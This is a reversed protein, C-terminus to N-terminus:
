TAWAEYIARGIGIAARNAEDSGEGAGASELAGEISLGDVQVSSSVKRAVLDLATKQVTGAYYPVEITVDLTQGIRHIRGNAQRVVRADYDVGEVWIARSFHVLNNLGTQVARPNTILIRRGPEIVNENLWDERRSAKVKNVDLFVARQGLYEKFLRLYRAPLGSSGTHRLFILVNRGQEISTRVRHLIWREKPTVWSAPFMKAAAVVNGGAEKPYSLVFEELDGTCRDLYSPLEAMAGWLKGALQSYRDAKIQRTLESLLRRFESLMEQGTGDDDAVTIPVPLEACPPLEEDLDEKHMIVAVPLLHDLIFSPLVGPAQGMQRIEPAERTEERDSRSGYGVIEPAAEASVPVYIKRYGYATIFAQQEWPRFQGRFRQSLAWMNPFLSSAYGGMLSGTLALTPVGPLEVLRHAAKQQASGKNSYEHWEDAILLGFRHRCHRLIYRALPFRRPEPTAQFLPEGCPETEEWLGLENLRDLARVLAPRYPKAQEPRELQAALELLEGSRQRPVYVSDHYESQAEQLAATAADLLQRARARLREAFEAELGSARCIQALANRLRYDVHAQAEAAMEHLRLAIPRLRDGTPLPGPAPLEPEEGEELDEEEVDPLPPLGEALIRHSSVLSRVLPDYPYTGTLAAALDEAIRAAENVPLRSVSECRARTEALREPSREPRTGCRPCVSRWSSHQGGAGIGAVGHGLKAAERSLVYIEADQHLDAIREVTVVRHHPLVAAAQDRWSKLLHPPCIILTRRVPSLRSTDFGLRRLEGVTARFYLPSLAGVVSLAVTSKGTGVEAIAQPNEGQALLKLATLIANRQVQYPERDLPPLEMQHAPNAPDHLAPFQERMLIGLSEGYHEVLDASNFDLLDTAGSPAAGPKLELFDLTDLRLVSLTLRPRQVKISGVKEGEQNFREEVTHFDRRFSGKVLIPPLGPRNPKLRKGNLTGVSLALAIHAPRPPQAVPFKAGIMDRVARNLGMFGLRHWPQFGTLLGQLDLSVEELQLGARDASVHFVPNSPERLEPMASADSAWREIRRQDLANEPLPAGRRRAVLVCQRFATFLADPFRWARIDQYNRALFAASAQLAYFPVLFMLVGDGPLLAATWRELFRQELRGHVKDFDYPPNLYLLSAGEQPTIDLHFADCHLSVDRQSAGYLSLRLRQDRARQEELEVAYVSADRQAEPFWLKRLEAIASGDGACPDVLLHLQDQAAFSVLSALSPLLPSPTPFYGGLAISQPRAM